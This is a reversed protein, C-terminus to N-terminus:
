PAKVDQTGPPATEGALAGQANGLLMSRHEDSDNDFVVIESVGPLRAFEKSLKKPFWTARVYPAFEPVQDLVSSISISCYAKKAPGNAEVLAILRDATAQSVPVTQELVRYSLRAHYDVYFRLVKDTIGFHVDGREPANVSFWTGAPDFLVRQTGNILLGSHAGSNNQNNIVTFLTVYPPDATDVYAARSVQDMPAYVHDAACASLGAFAAMAILLRPM